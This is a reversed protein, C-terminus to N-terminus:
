GWEEGGGGFFFQGKRHTIRIEMKVSREMPWDLGASCVADRDLRSNKKGFNVTMVSTGAPVGVRCVSRLHFEVPVLLGSVSYRCCLTFIGRSTDLSTPSALTVISYCHQELFFM